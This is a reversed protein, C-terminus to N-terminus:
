GAKQRMKKFVDWLPDFMSEGVIWKGCEICGRHMVEPDYPDSEDVPHWDTAEEPACRPHYFLDGEKKAIVSQETYTRKAM